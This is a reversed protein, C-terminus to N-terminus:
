PTLDLIVVGTPTEIFAVNGEAEEIFQSVGEPTIVFEMSGEAHPLDGASGPVYTHTTLFTASKALSLAEAFVAAASSSLGLLQALNTDADIVLNGSQALVIVKPFTLDAVADLQSSVVNTDIKPLSVQGDLLLNADQAIAKSVVLAIDDDIQLGGTLLISKIYNFSTAVDISIVGASVLTRITAYSIAAVADLQSTEAQALFRALSTLGERTLTAAVTLADTRAFTLAVAYALGGVFSVTHIRNLTAASLDMDVNGVPSITRNTVALTTDAIFTGLNSPSITRNAIALTLVTGWTILNTPVSTRNTVALTALGERTLTGAPSITRNTVALTVAEEYTAAKVVTITAHTGPYSDLVTGANTVRLEITDADNVDGDIVQYSFDAEQEDGNALNNSGTLGDGDEQGANTSDFTRPGALRETAVDNGETLHTSAIMQVVSSSANVANWGLSNRNYELQLQLGSAQKTGSNGVGFRVRFASGTGHSRGTNKSGALTNTAEGADDDGFWYNDQDLTPSGGGM